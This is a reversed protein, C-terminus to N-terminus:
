ANANEERAKANVAEVNLKYYIFLVIIGAILPVGTFMFTLMNNVSAAQVLEAADFGSAALLWGSMASGLGGGVKMGFSTCSYMSGDIRKGTKRFTYESAEAVLANFTGGLSCCTLFSLAFLIMMLPVNKALAAMVFAIRVLIHLGFSGMSVTRISHFKKILFPVMILGIVSAISSMTAFKGFMNGDGLVYICFYVAGGMSIGMNMYFVTYLLALMDFYKNSLLLKMTEVFGVKESAADTVSDNVVEEPLEKVSFVSFTNIVLGTVAFIVATIKWGAAGGGFNEVMKLTFNSVVLNGITSGIFRFTGLQVRENGNKTILATLTSYSINNVTYFIANLLTYTIFFYIYQATEGMGLPTAFLLILCIANGFFSGLMWPRAKGMKTHTRDLISGFAIDTLGDLLKSVMILTGVVAANMGVTNTLYIMVFSSILGFVMNAAFDGAGYGFKNFANLYKKEEM